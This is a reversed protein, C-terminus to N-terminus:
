SPGRDPATPSAPPRVLHILRSALANWIPCRDHVASFLVLGAALILIWAPGAALGIVLLVSGTGLRLLRDTQSLGSPLRDEGVSASEFISRLHSPAQAGVIRLREQGGWFVLLTPISRVGLDTVLEPAEDANVELLDVRDGYERSLAGLHHRQRRCPACWPAWFEVVTPRTLQKLTESTPQENMPDERSDLRPGGYRIGRGM